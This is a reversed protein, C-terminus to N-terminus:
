NGTHRDPSARRQKKLHVVIQDKSLLTGTRLLTLLPDELEEPEWVTPDSSDESLVEVSDGWDLGVFPGPPSSYRDGRLRSQSLTTPTRRVVTAQWFAFGVTFQVAGSSRKSAARANSKFVPCTLHDFFSCPESVQVTAQV